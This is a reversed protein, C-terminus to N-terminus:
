DGPPIPEAGRRQNRVLTENVTAIALEGGGVIADIEANRLAAVSARGEQLRVVFDDTLGYRVNANM